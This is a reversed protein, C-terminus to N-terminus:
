GDVQQAVWGAYDAEAEVTHTLLQPVQYPHQARLWDCLPRRGRRAPDKCWAGNPTRRSPARCVYHSAIAEVQM